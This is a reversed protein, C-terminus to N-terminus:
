DPMEPKENAHQKKTSGAKLAQYEENGTGIKTKLLPTKRKPKWQTEDNAMLAPCKELLAAFTNV